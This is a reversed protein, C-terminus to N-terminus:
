RYLCTFIVAFTTTVALGYLAGKKSGAVIAHHAWTVSAGSSLSIITNLLPLGWPSIAEIGSPPWVSGINFVPALSSSFIGSFRSFFMVESVIFLIMGM